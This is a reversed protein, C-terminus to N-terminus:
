RQKKLHHKRDRKPEEEDKSSALLEMLVDLCRQLEEKRGNLWAKLLERDAPAISPHKRVYKFAWHVIQRFNAHAEIVAPLDVQTAVELENLEEILIGHGKRAVKRV